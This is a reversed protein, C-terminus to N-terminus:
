KQAQSHKRTVNKQSRKCNKDQAQNQSRPNQQIQIPTSRCGEEMVRTAPQLEKLKYKVKNEKRQISRTQM